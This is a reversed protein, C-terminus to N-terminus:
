RPGGDVPRPPEPAQRPAREALGRAVDLGWLMLGALIGAAPKSWQAVSVVVVAPGVIGPGSQRVASVVRGTAYAVQGLRQTSIRM